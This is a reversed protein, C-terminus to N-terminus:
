WLKWFSRKAKFGNKIYASEPFNEQMVRKTDDRLQTLNLKDYSQYLIFVAEELAPADSYDVLANQARNVAAVYAGREYYYRAINVEYQAIANVIYNMRARADSSYKSDPYRKVLESFASFSEKSARQDRESLDQRSLNGLWGLQAEFNVLGKLYLAYDLAPSAPHQKLFDDLVTTAKAPENNKYHTYAQELKAQQALPTGAARGELKEYLALAKDFNGSSFEDRAESYIKNPSWTDPNNKDATSSCGYAGLILSASVVWKFINGVDM